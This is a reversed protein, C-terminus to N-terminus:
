IERSQTRAPSALRFPRAWDTPVLTLMPHTTDSLGFARLFEVHKERTGDTTHGDVMFWAEITSAPHSRWHTANVEVENYTTRNDLRQRRSLAHLQQGIDAGVYSSRRPSWPFTRHNSRCRGNSDQENVCLVHTSPGPRLIVGGSPQVRKRTHPDDVGVECGWYIPVVAAELVRQAAYILSGPM